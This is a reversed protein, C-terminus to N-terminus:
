VGGGPSVQTHQDLVQILRVIDHPNHTLRLDSLYRIGLDQDLINQFRQNSFESVPLSVTKRVPSNRTLSVLRSIPDYLLTSLTKGHKDTTCRFLDTNISHVYQTIHKDFDISSALIYGFTGPSCQIELCDPDVLTSRDSLPNRFSWKNPHQKSVVAISPGLFKRIMSTSHGSKSLVAAAGPRPVLLPYAYISTDILVGMHQEDVFPVFLASHCVSDFEPKMFYTPVNGLICKSVYPDLLSQVKLSQAYCNGGTHEQVCHKSINDQYNKCLVYPIKDFAFTAFTRSVAPKCVRTLFEQITKGFRAANSEGDKFVSQYPIM